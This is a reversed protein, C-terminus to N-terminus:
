NFLYNDKDTYYFIKNELQVDASHNKLRSVYRKIDSLEKDYFCKKSSCAHFGIHMDADNNVRGNSKFFNFSDDCKIRLYNTLILRYHLGEFDPPYKNKDHRLINLKINTISTDVFFAEIKKYSQIIQDDTDFDSIITLNLPKALNNLCLKELIKFLNDKLKQNTKDGLIYRDFIVISTVPLFFDNLKSWNDFKMTSPFRADNTVKFSTNRRITKIRDWSKVIDNSSVYIYGRQKSLADCENYDLSTLFINQESLKQYFEEKKLDNNLNPNFKIKDYKDLLIEWLPNEQLAATFETVSEFDSILTIGFTDNQLFQILDSHCEDLNAEIFLTDMFDKTASLTTM